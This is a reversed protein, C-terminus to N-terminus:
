DRPLYIQRILILKKDYVKKGDKNYAIMKLRGFLKPLDIIFNGYNGNKSNIKYANRKKQTYVGKGLTQMDEPIIRIRKRYKRLTDMEHDLKKIKDESFKKNKKIERCVVKKVEQIKYYNVLIKIMNM